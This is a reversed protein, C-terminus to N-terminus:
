IKEFGDEPHENLIRLAEEGTYGSAGIGVEIM